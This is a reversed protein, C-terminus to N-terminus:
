RPRAPARAETIGPASRAEAYRALAERRAQAHDVIPAPYGHPVGGNCRWPEHADDASLQTLEPVWRRIYTADPDFRRGQVVPNFVRVYPAADTGTGAVWQWGHSNSALDGDVLHRMFHRAGRQWPLHLDKVLFSAVIMRLRNHMWGEALLQRMGADIIPYGTRGEAWATFREDALTGTDWRLAAMNPAFDRRASGPWHHLVAAYFERWALERRFTADDPSLDALLTRPHIAGLKLFPSLRSTRDLDPRNRDRPYGDLHQTRFRHWAALAAQEGAAPLMLSPALSPEDPVPLGETVLWDVTAPDSRAPKPWGHMQWARYFASFVRYPGGPGAVRGPSVAYPSGTRVLPVSALEAEVHADRVSGLPGFDASIHVATADIERAVAPVVEAPSGRRVVLKGGFSRIDADLAHLTRYLYAIRPTGSPRLLAEDLVFLPLVGGTSAAAALAPHDGLRLDRRLWLVSCPM